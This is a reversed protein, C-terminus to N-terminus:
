WLWRQRWPWYTKRPGGLRFEVGGNLTLNHTNSMRRNDGIAVIDIFELRFAVWDDHRYKFGLGFPFTPASQNIFALTDTQFTFIGLGIGGLIFPRFRTTTWPYFLLDADFFKEQGNRVFPPGVLNQVSGGAMVARGEIGWYDDFDWGLRIGGNVGSGQRVRRAVLDDGWYGGVFTGVYLTREHWQESILPLPPGHLWSLRACLRDGLHMGLLGGGASFGDEDPDHLEFDLDRQDAQPPHPALIIEEQTADHGDLLPLAQPSPLTRPPVPADMSADSEEAASETPGITDGALLEPVNILRLESEAARASM